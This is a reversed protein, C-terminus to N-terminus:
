KIETADKVLGHLAMYTEPSAGAFAVAFVFLWLLASVFVLECAYAGKTSVQDPLRLVFSLHLVSALLLPTVVLIQVTWEGGFMKPEEAKQEAEPHKDLFRIRKYERRLAIAMILVAFLYLIGAVFISWVPTAKTIPQAALNPILLLSFLFSFLILQNLFTNRLWIAIAVWTDATFLGKQPTLYNSYRRLWRIPEPHAPSDKDSPLPVLRKQVERFGMGPTYTKPPTAVPALRQQEQEERKIWAALWEHIYGGGSVSSLYDFHDLAGMKALGQLVGLNFTASRIGGGSFCIGQLKTSRAWEYPDDAHSFEVDPRKHIKHIKRRARIESIEQTLLWRNPTYDVLEALRQQIRPQGLLFHAFQNADFKLREIEDCRPLDKPVPHTRFYEVAASALEDLYQGPADKDPEVV